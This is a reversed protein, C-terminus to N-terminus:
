VQYPHSSDQSYGLLHRICQLLQLREKFYYSELDSTLPAWERERSLTQNLEDFTGRYGMGSYMLFLQYTQLQDLALRSSLHTLFTYQPGSVKTKLAQGATSSCQATVMTIILLPEGQLSTTVSAYSSGIL